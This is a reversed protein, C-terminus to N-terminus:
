NPRTLNSNFLQNSQRQDMVKKMQFMVSTEQNRNRMQHLHFISILYETCGAYEHHLVCISISRSCLSFCIDLFKVSM